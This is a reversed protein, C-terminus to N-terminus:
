SQLQDERLAMLQIRERLAHKIEKSWAKGKASKINIPDTEGEKHCNIDFHCINVRNASHNVVIKYVRQETQNGQSFPYEGEYGNFDGIRLFYLGRQVVEDCEIADINPENTGDWLEHTFPRHHVQIKIDNPNACCEIVGTPDFLNCSNGSIDINIASDLLEYEGDIERWTSNEDETFRCLYRDTWDNSEVLSDKTASPILREPYM